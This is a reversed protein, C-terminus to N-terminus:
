QTVYQLVFFVVFTLIIGAAELVTAPHLKM